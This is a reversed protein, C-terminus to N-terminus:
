DKPAADAMTQRQAALCTNVLRAREPAPWREEDALEAAWEEASLDSDVTAHELLAFDFTEPNWLWKNDSQEKTPPHLKVLADFETLGLGRFEIRYFCADRETQATDHAQEAKARVDPDEHMLTAAVLQRAVDLRRKAAEIQPQPVIAVEHFTHLSTKANLAARLPSQAAKKATKPM